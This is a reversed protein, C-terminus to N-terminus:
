CGRIVSNCTWSRFLPFVFRIVRLVQVLRFGGLARAGERRSFASVSIAGIARISSMVRIASIARIM